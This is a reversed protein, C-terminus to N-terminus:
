KVAEKVGYVSEWEPIDVTQGALKHSCDSLFQIRGDRVFSHCRDEGKTDERIGGMMLISPSITPKDMSGNWSWTKTNFFHACECGPCFFLWEHTADYGKYLKM